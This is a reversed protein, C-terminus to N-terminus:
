VARVKFIAKHIVGSGILPAHATDPGFTIAKGAEVCVTKFDKDSFFVIDKETNFEGEATCESRAKVGFTEPGSLPIQIDIYVNHAELRAADKTKLNSDVINVWVNDGDIVHRGPELAALDTNAIYDLAKQYYPNNM